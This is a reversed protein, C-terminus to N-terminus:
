YVQVLMGETLLQPSAMEEAATLGLNLTVRYAGPQLGGEGLDIGIRTRAAQAIVQDTLTLMKHGQLPKAYLSVQQLTWTAGSGLAALGVQLQYPQRHDLQNPVAHVGRNILVARTLRPTGAAEEPTAQGASGAQGAGASATAEAQASVHLETEPDSGYASPQAQAPLHKHLFALIAEGNLGQFSQRDRTLLHEVRGYLPVDDLHFLEVRFTSKHRGGMHPAEPWETLSSQQALQRLSHELRDRTRAAEAELTEYRQQWDELQEEKQLAKQIWEDKDAKARRLAEELQAVAEAEKALPADRQQELLQRYAQMLEQRTMRSLPKDSSNPPPM